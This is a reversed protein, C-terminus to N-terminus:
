NQKFKNEIEGWREELDIGDKKLRIGVEKLIEHLSTGSELKESIEKEILRSYENKLSEPLVGHDETILNLAELIVADKTTKASNKGNLKEVTKEIGEEIEPTIRFEKGEINQKARMAGKHTLAGSAPHEHNNQQTPNEFTM